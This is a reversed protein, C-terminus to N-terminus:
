LLVLRCVQKIQLRNGNTVDGLVVLTGQPSCDGGADPRDRSSGGGGINGSCQKSNAAKQKGRAGILHGLSLPLTRMKLLALPLLL